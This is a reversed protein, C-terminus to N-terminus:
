SSRAIKAKYKGDEFEREFAEHPPIVPLEVETRCGDARSFAPIRLKMMQADVEDTKLVRRLHTMYRSSHKGPALALDEIPGTAGAAKAWFAILCVDTAYL